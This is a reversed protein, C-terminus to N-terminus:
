LKTEVIYFILVILIFALAPSLFIFAEGLESTVFKDLTEM